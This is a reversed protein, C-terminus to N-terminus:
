YAVQIRPSLMFFYPHEWPKPDRLLPTYYQVEINMFDRILEIWAKTYFISAYYQVAMGYRFRGNHTYEARLIPSVYDAKEIGTLQKGNEDQVGSAVQHYGVGGSLVLPFSSGALFFQRSYTLQAVTHLFFVDSMNFVVSQTIKNVDGVSFKVGLASEDFPQEFEVSIGRAGTLRRGRLDLPSAIAAEERGYTFPAMIGIKFQDLVAMVRLDGTSWFHYGIEEHGLKLEVGRGDSFLLLAGFASASLSAFLPKEPGIQPRRPRIPRPDIPRKPYAGTLIEQHLSDSLNVYTERRGMVSTGVSIELIENADPNVVVVIEQNPVIEPHRLRFSRYIRERLDQDLIIWTPYQVKYVSDIMNLSALIRKMRAADARKEELTSKLIQVSDIAGQRVGEQASTTLATLVLLACGGIVSRWMRMTM